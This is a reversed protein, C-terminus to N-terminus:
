DNSSSVEYVNKKKSETTAAMGFVCIDETIKLPQHHSNLYNTGSEKKWIWNYKYMDINSMILASTFPQQSFLVIAGTNKIIRKYQEWLKDFPLVSDWACATTGYPLDCVICDVSGDPIKKMGELCDENYIKNLEIM